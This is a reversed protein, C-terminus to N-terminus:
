FVYFYYYFLQHSVCPTPRWGGHTHSLSLGADCRHQTKFPVPLGCPWSLRWPGRLTQVLNPPAQSRKGAASHTPPPTQPTATTQIRPQHTGTSLLPRVWVTCTVATSPTMSKIRLSCRPFTLFCIISYSYM